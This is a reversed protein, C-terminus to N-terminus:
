GERVKLDPNSDKSSDFLRKQLKSIHGAQAKILEGISQIDYFEMIGKHETVLRGNDEVLEMNANVYTDAAFELEKCVESLRAIEARQKNIEKEQKAAISTWKAIEAEQGSLASDYGQIREQQSRYATFINSNRLSAILEGIDWCDKSNGDTLDAWEALTAKQLFEELHELEEVSLEDPM